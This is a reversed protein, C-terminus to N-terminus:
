SNTIAEPVKDKVLEDILNVKAANVEEVGKMNHKTIVVEQLKTCSFLLNYIFLLLLFYLCRTSFHQV